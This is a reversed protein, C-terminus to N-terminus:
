PLFHVNVAVWDLSFDRATSSAVNTIRVRFNANSLQGTQWVHGWTDAPGGLTYTGESTTLTSTSKPTTWSVGGDWSLEVCMKPANSSSDVRADLRVELGQITAGGPLSLNYNFYVHKDKGRATCSLETSTGSNTDVAFTSDNAQGNAPTAEFGNNDGAQATVPTNANPSLFGTNGPASTPTASAGPTSRPTRTATPTVALTSTPTPTPTPDSGLIQIVQGGSYNTLYLEGAEDEGFSSIFYPTDVLFGGTWTGPPGQTLGWLLGSCYDGYIYVGQMSPFSSGRYVYGGTVACSGNSHTDYDIIPLVKGSMDCGTPPQFCWTGEMVDWGYNLGGPSDSVEFDIEERNGQGVDGILLDGTTRDFSYRWPNRFGYDWIEERVSPDPDNFYPNDTPIAYPSGGDVDLRLFKGLLTDLSQGNADPDGFGGGDGTSLYLMGDDGFALM